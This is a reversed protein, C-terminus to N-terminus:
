NGASRRRKVSRRVSLPILAAAAIIVVLLIIVPLTFIRHSTVYEETKKEMFVAVYEADGIVTTVDPTWGEFVFQKEPDELAPGDYVPAPPLLVTDGYEYSQSSLVTNGNRFIVTYTRRLYSLEISVDNEPMVFSIRDELVDINNGDADKASSISLILNESASSYPVTVVTGAEAFSSGSQAEGNGNFIFNVTYSDRLEITVTGDNVMVYAKGGELVSDCKEGNLYANVDKKESDYPLFLLVEGVNATNGNKDVATFVYAGDDSKVISIMDVEDMMPLADKEVIIGSSGISVSLGLGKEIATRISEGVVATDTSVSVSCYEDDYSVSNSEPSTVESYQAHYVADSVAPIVAPSWGYFLYRKGDEEYEKEFGDFVPFEGYPKTMHFEEGRVVFTIQYEKAEKSYVAVYTANETVPKFVTNWGSFTYVTENECYQETYHNKGDPISGYTYQVRDTKNMSVFTVTYKRLSKKFSAYYDTDKSVSSLVTAKGNKDTWGEFVYDFQEDSAKSPAPATYEAQSGKKIVTTFCIDDGNHFNVTCFDDGSGSDSVYTSIAATYWLSLVMDNNVTRKYVTSNKLGNMLERETETFLPAAPYSEPSIYNEGSPKEPEPVEQPRVPEEITKTWTKIPPKVEAPPFPMVPEKPAEAKPVAEPWVSSLPSSYVSDSLSDIINGLDTIFADFREAKKKVDLVIQVIGNSALSSLSYYLKLSASRISNYNQKYYNFKAEETSASAYGSLYNRLEQTANATNDVDAAPIGAAVIEAKRSMVESVTGSMVSSYISVSDIMPTFASNIAEMKSRVADLKALYATYESYAKLKSDYEAALLNYEELLTYYNEKKALYEEYAKVQSEYNEVKKRYDLYEAYLVAYKSYAKLYDEYEAYKVAYEDIKEEFSAMSNQYNAVETEYKKESELAAIGINYPIQLISNVENANLTIVAKYRVDVTYTKGNELGTFVATYTKGSADMNKKTSGLVATEPVWVVKAGNSATYETKDAKVTVSGNGSSVSLVKGSVPCSYTLLIGSEDICHIEAESLNSIGGLRLFESATMTVKESSAKNHFDLQVSAANVATQLIESTLLFVAFLVTLISKLSKHREFFNM